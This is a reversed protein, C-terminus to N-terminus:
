QGLGDRVRRPDALLDERPDRRGHSLVGHNAALRRGREVPGPLGLPGHPGHQRQLRRNAPGGRHPAGRADPFPQPQGEPGRLDSRGTRQLRREAGAPLPERRHRSSRQVLPTSGPMFEMYVVVYDVGSATFLDYHNDNNVGFHDGYYDRGQFRSIGFFQNYLTTTATQNGVAIGYPLGDPLLTTNPDELLSMAADAVLFESDDGGNDGNQVCDGVHAVYVINLAQQNDVIWQTQASFIPSADETYKQTDPLVIITFDELCLDNADDCAVGTCPAAGAQCDLAPDRGNNPTSVCQDGAEDCTDDTCGVGDSCDIPAGPQCDLAPDCTESGNCFAGDDCLAPNPTHVRRRRLAGPQAHARVPRRGRRLRRRHLRRRRLLRDGRGAPLRTRRRLGRRRQLLRRRRLAGPEEDCADDTCGVGDSCDIAAGPQCDLAPDCIEAGNCFAGDDCLAPNPTQVCQDGVEDCTDDTCGIGDSCDVPSGPQCDLAPDCVETGNCFAGDSCVGHDPIHTCQDTPEFCADHTCAVGDSCDVPTGPQCDLAPDCTEVGNCFAGDDCLTQNPTHVCQDGVEDCADDTCGVGDSCDRPLAPQCDLAPDCVEAGNCFVGDDCLAPNPTHVCQDTIEDCLDDTCGVADACDVPTGPQCDLAPDCSEAGNCFAGDDCLADDATQVCQDAAEDCTDVTCAVGDSCDVATGPQCDLAPDCSEVGNCFAGDDCLADSPTHACEDTAENCADVTCAVGDSCDVTTGPQCDLVSDCTEVGNCFAGDDCRTDDATQVCQDAAEDCTDVTCAVGDSCDVSTGPQCDLAPDCTEVGNCFAGDNCLADSPTHVCQDAAEDCIDVTCTIGDSCDFAAPQCDLAPDCIEAGNCFAGDDCSAPDPTHVCQDAAEDCADVTCAVGDACDIPAGARCDLAPDCSEAGNCFAGDDCLADDPAHDCADASENCSDATCSVGDDCGPPAGPACVSAQCSEAGNCFLGDDCEADVSCPMPPSQIELAIVAWDTDGSLSGDVAVAGAAAVWRDQVATSAVGGGSGSRIEARETFAAGPTHLRSRMSAAGFARSDADVTLDVSYANGDQGGSCAGGAGNSNGAVLNGLTVAGFAGTYRTVAIVANTAAGDLSATVAGAGNPDGQAMWVSVGTQGRGSCQTAVESWSLGLGAVATVTQVPRYSIAALYLDGAVGALAASTAVTAEDSSAGTSAEQFLVRETTCTDGAEDCAQSPCPDAGPQCDLAPDCTEVGSCFLGDDCLADQPLHQCTAEAQNCSDVTCGVGDDCDIDEACPHSAAAIRGGGLLVLVSV